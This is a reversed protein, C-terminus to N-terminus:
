SKSPNVVGPRAPKNCGAGVTPNTHNQAFRVGLRLQSDHPEGAEARLVRQLTERADRPAADHHEASVSGKVATGGREDNGAEHKRM